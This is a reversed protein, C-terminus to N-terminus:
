EVVEFAGRMWPHIRCFYAYKGTPLEKPTKALPNPEGGDVVDYGLTGSDWTGDALPYNGVYRGNCPWPCTTVSHRINLAQDANFFTIQKGRKVRPPNGAQGSLNQDGPLYQFNAISVLDTFEGKGRPSEPRDCPPGGYKEGCFLDPHHGWERNAVGATVDVGQILPRRHRHTWVRKVRRMKGTRSSRVRVWRTHRHGKGKTRRKTMPKNDGVLYPKCGPRPAEAEDIYFGEHTMATYWAHNLNEYVGTIRIRDGKRIPARWAPHTVEMQFDESLPANRTLADSILLDTGGFGRGDDACPREASGMNEVEVRM